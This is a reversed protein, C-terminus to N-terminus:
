ASGVWWDICKAALKSVNAEEAEDPCQTVLALAKQEPLRTFRIPELFVLPDYERSLMGGDGSQKQRQERSV